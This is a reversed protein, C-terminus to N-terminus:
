PYSPQGWKGGLYGGLLNGLFLLLAAFLAGGALGFSVPPMAMGWSIITGFVSLIVALVMGLALGFVATMAGHLAGSVRALKAATYGGAIHASFGSILSIVIAAATFQGAQSPVEAFLGYPTALIPSPMLGAIAAVTWGLAMAWWQIGRKAQRSMGKTGRSM